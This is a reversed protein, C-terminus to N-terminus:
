ATNQDDAIKALFEPHKYYTTALVLSRMRKEANAVDFVAKSAIIGDYGFDMVMAADLPLKIGGYAFLPVPLRGLNAVQNLLGVSYGKEKAHTARAAADMDGKVIKINANLATMLEGLHQMNIADEDPAGGGFMGGGVPLAARLVAAGDFISKLANDLTGIDIPAGAAPEAKSLSTMAAIPLKLYDIHDASASGLLDNEDIGDAFSSVMVAAEITHGVTMRAFVPLMVNELIAKVSQSDPARSAGDGGGGGGGGGGFM